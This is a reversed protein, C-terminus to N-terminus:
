SVSKVARNIEKSFAHQAKAIKVSLNYYKICQVATIRLMDIASKVGARNTDVAEEAVENAFKKVQDQYDGFAKAWLNFKNDAADSYQALKSLAQIMSMDIPKKDETVDFVSINNFINKFTASPNNPIYITKNANPYRSLSAVLDDSPSTLSDSRKIESGLWDVLEYFSLRSDALANLNIFDRKTYDWVLNSMMIREDSSVNDEKAVGETLVKYAEHNENLVLLTEEVNKKTGKFLNGFVKSLTEKIYQGFSSLKELIWKFGNKVTELLRKGLGQQEADETAIPSSDIEEVYEQGEESDPDIGLSSVIARRGVQALVQEQETLKGDERDSVITSMVQNQLQLNDQAVRLRDVEDNVEQLEGIGEDIRKATEDLETTDVEVVEETENQIDCEQSIIYKNLINM